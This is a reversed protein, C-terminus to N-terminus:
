AGTDEGLRHRRTLRKEDIHVVLGGDDSVIDPINGDASLIRFLEKVFAYIENPVRRPVIHTVTLLCAPVGFRKM